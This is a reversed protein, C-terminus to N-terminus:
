QIRFDDFWVTGSFPSGISGLRITITKATGSHASKSLADSYTVWTATGTYVDSIYGTSSDPLGAGVYFEGTSPPGGAFYVRFSLTKASLNLTGSLCIPLTFTIEAQNLQVVDVALAASGNFTRVALTLGSPSTLGDLAGSDFTWLLRSCSNDSCKADPNACSFGCSTGNCTPVSRDNPATCKACQPGCSDVTNQPQCTTGDPAADRGSSGASTGSTGGSGGAGGSGSSGASGGSGGRGSSGSSAASGGRGSAGDTGGQGTGGGVSGGVGGQAAGSGSSGSNSGASGGSSGGAGASSGGTGTGQTNGAGSGGDSGADVSSKATFEAGCAGLAGAALLCALPRNSGPVM